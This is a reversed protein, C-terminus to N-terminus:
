EQPMWYARQVTGAYEAVIERIVANARERNKYWGMITYKGNGGLAVVKYDGNKTAYDSEAFVREMRDLNVIEGAQTMILM